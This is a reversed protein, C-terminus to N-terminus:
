KHDDPVQLFAYCPSTLLRSGKAQPITGQVASPAGPKCNPLQGGKGMYGVSVALTSVSKAAVPYSTLRFCVLMNKNQFCSNIGDGAVRHM